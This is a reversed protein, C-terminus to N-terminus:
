IWGKFRYYVLAAQEYIADRSLKLAATSPLFRGAGSTAPERNAPSAVVIVDLGQRAALAVVRRAQVRSVVLIARRVKYYKILKRIESVQDYTTSGYAMRSRDQPLGRSYLDGRLDGPGVIWITRAKIARDLAITLEARALNSDGDLAFIEDFPQMRAVDDLSPTPSWPVISAAVFPLSLVTYTAVLTVLLIRGARRTRPRVLALLGLAAFTVFFGTSGPAGIAKLFRFM